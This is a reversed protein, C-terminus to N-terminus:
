REEFSNSKLVVTLWGEHLEEHIATFSPPILVSLERWQSEMFGSLVFLGHHQQSSGPIIQKLCPWEINMVILDCSVQLVGPDDAVVLHVTDEVGNAVFNRRAVRVALLNCDIAVVRAAGSLGCAIALIGTGTGFDVVSRLSYRAFVHDLALLCGRTTPHLGSGFVVGPDIHLLRGGSVLLTSPSFDHSVIVFSGITQADTSVQQWQDYDIEYRGRLEWGKQVQVWEAVAQDVRDDFFLYYYPPEPWIGVLSPEVPENTPLGPASCEYVFLRRGKGSTMPTRDVM